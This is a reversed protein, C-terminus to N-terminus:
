PTKEKVNGSLKKRRKKIVVAAGGLLALGGLGALVYYVTNDSASDDTFTTTPIVGASAKCAEWAVKGEIEIAHAKDQLAYAEKTLRPWGIAMFQAKVKKWQDYKEKYGPCTAYKEANLWWTPDGYSRTRMPLRRLHFTNM